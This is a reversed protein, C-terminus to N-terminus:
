PCGMRGPHPRGERYGPPLARIHDGPRDLGVASFLSRAGGRKAATGRSVNYRCGSHRRRRHCGRISVSRVPAVVSRGLVPHSRGSGFSFAVLAARRRRHVAAFRRAFDARACDAGRLLGAGACGAVPRSLWVRREISVFRFTGLHPLEAISLAALSEVHFEGLSDADRGPDHDASRGM